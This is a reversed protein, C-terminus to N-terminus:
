ALFQCVADAWADADELMPYHGLEDLWTLTAQPIEAALREAIAPVAIPDRRAWLIHAPVDLRTLAGIWRHWFRRREALYGSIQPVRARGDNRLLTEWALELEENPVSEPKGLIDRIRNIFLPRNILRAVVPGLAPRTLLRQLLTLQALEIHVSGNCLTVSELDIPLLDRERRALLETAVSTGYDHALLHMREVGLQRWVAIAVDAQELLSYSYDTPKDSLGFGPHDHLVVRFSDALKPLVLHYDFSSTPFGHLIALVPADDGGATRSFVRLPGVQLSRGSREWEDLATVGLAYTM